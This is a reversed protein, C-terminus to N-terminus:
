EVITGRNYKKFAGMLKPLKQIKSEWTGFVLERAMKLSYWAKQYPIDYGTHDKVTQIAHKIPFTPNCKVQGPTSHKCLVKWKTKSSKPVYYERRTHRISHDKVAEILAEQAFEQAIVNLDVDNPGEEPPIPFEVEDPESDEDSCNAFSDAIPNKMMRLPMFSQSVHTPETYHIEINELGRSITVIDPTYYGTDYNSTGTCFNPNSTGAGFDPNSTGGLFDTNSTSPFGQTALLAMYEGWQQSMQPNAEGWQQSMQPTAEGWQQNMQPTAEGWQQNADTHIQQTEVYVEMSPYGAAPDLFFLLTEDDKIEVITKKIHGLYTCSYKTSVKLLYEDSDAGINQYIKTLFQAYTSSRPIRIVAIPRRDYTVSWGDESLEGGFYVLIDVKGQVQHLVHICPGLGFLYYDNALLVM